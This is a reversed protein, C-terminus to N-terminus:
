GGVRKRARRRLRSDTTLEVVVPELYPRACYLSTGYGVKDEPGPKGTSCSVSRLAGGTGKPVEYFKPASDSGAPTTTRLEGTVKVNNKIRCGPADHRVDFLVLGPNASNTSGYSTRDGDTQRASLTGRAVVIGDAQSAAVEVRYELDVRAGDMDNDGYSRADANVRLAEPSVEIPTCTVKAPRLRVEIPKYTVICQPVDTLANDPDDTTDRCSAHDVVGTGYLKLSEGAPPGSDSMTGRNQSISAIECAGPIDLLTARTTRAYYGTQGGGPNHSAVLGDVEVFVRRKTTRLKVDLSRSVKSAGAIHAAWPGALRSFWVDSKPLQVTRVGACPDGPLAVPGPTLPGDPLDLGPKATAPPKGPMTAKPPAAHALRGTQPVLLTTLALAPLLALSRSM